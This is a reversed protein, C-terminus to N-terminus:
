VSHLDNVYWTYNLFYVRVFNLENKKIVSYMLYYLHMKHGLMYCAQFVSSLVYISEPLIIYFTVAFILYPFTLVSHYEASLTGATTFDLRTFPPIHLMSPSLIIEYM